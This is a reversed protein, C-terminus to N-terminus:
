YNHSCQGKAQVFYIVNYVSFIITKFHKDSLTSTMTIFDYWFWKEAFYNGSLVSTRTQSFMGSVIYNYKVVLKCRGPTCQKGCSYMTLAVTRVDGYYCSRLDSVIARNFEGNHLHLWWLSTNISILISLSLEWFVNNILNPGVLRM